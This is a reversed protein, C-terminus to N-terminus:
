GKSLFLLYTAEHVPSIGTCFQTVTFDTSPACGPLYPFAEWLPKFVPMALPDIM